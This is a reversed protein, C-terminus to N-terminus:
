LNEVDEIKLKLINAITTSDLGVAKLEKAADLKEKNFEEEIEIETEAKTKEVAEEVAEEVAKEVAEKVAVEWKKDNEEKEEIIAARHMLMNEYQERELPTLKSSDLKEVAKRIWETSLEFPIEDLINIKKSNKMLYLLKDLDSKLQGKTKEFKSIEIFIHTIQHDLTEGIQNKLRGFHYYEKSQHFINKGMFSIIYIPPLPNDFKYDGKKLLANFRNFAYFKSRHVYNKFHGLQMEVIFNHNNEDICILDCRGGRSMETVPTIDTSIFQIHKIPHKLQIIAQLATRLFLTDNEDAFVTKFGFDSMLSIFRNEKKM